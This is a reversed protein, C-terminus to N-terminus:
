KAAPRRKAAPTESKTNLFLNIALMIPIPLMYHWYKAFFGPEATQTDGAGAPHPTHPTDVRPTVNDMIPRPGDEGYKVAVSTHWKSGEIAPSVGGTCDSALTHLSLAIPLGSSIHVIIEDAFRSELVLCAPVSALLFGEGQLIRVRYSGGHKALGILSAVDGSGL